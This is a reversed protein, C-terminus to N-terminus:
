HTKLLWVEAVYPGSRLGPTRPEKPDSWDVVLRRDKVLERPIPFNTFQPTRASGAAAVAKTEGSETVSDPAPEVKQQNVYLTM